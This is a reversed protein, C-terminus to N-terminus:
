RVRGANGRRDGATEGGAPHMLDLVVAEPEDPSAVGGADTLAFPDPTYIPIEGLPLDGGLSIGGWVDGMDFLTLDAGIHFGFATENQLTADPTLHLSFDIKGAHDADHISANKIDMPSNFAFPLLTGDELMMSADQAKLVSNLDFHQTLDVGGDVNLSV